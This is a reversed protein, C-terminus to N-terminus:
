TGVVFQHCRAAVGMVIAISNTYLTSKLGIKLRSERPAIRLELFAHGSFAWTVNCIHRPVFFYKCICSATIIGYGVPTSHLQQSSKSKAICLLFVASAVIWLFTRLWFASESGFWENMFLINIILLYSDFNKHLNQQIM